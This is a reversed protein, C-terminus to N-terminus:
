DLRDVLAALLRDHLRRTTERLGTCWTDFRYCRSLDLGELFAGRFVAAARELEVADTDDMRRAVDQMDAFDIYADGVTFSVRGAHTTIRGASGADVIPRLKSLAGRLAARPDAPGDWLLECLHERAHARGTAVLYALLARATRSPPLELPHADRLVELPGLLRIELTTGRM